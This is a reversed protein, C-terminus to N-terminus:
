DNMLDHIRHLEGRLAPAQDGYLPSTGDSVLREALAVGRVSAREARLLRSIARLDEAVLAVVSIEFLPRAGRVCPKAPNSAEEVMSDISRALLRQTRAARLRQRERQVVAIQVSEHGELIRDLARDRRRQALVASVIALGFLVIVASLAADEAWAVGERFDIMSGILVASVVRLQRVVSELGDIARALPHDPGLVASPTQSAGRGARTAIRPSRRKGRGAESAVARRFFSHPRVV